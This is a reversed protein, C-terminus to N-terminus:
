SKVTTIRQHQEIASITFTDVYMYSQPASKVDVLDNLELPKDLVRVNTLEIAVGFEKGKYYDAYESYKIGGVHRYKKWLTLPRQKNITTVDCIAVILKVPSSSYIIIRDFKQKFVTKRFEVTKEGSLIKEVFKPKIPLLAATEQKYNVIDLM